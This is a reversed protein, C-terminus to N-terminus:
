RRFKKRNIVFILIFLILYYAVVTKYDTKINEISAYPLKSIWEVFKDMINAIYALPLFMIAFSPYIITLIWAIAAGAIIITSLPIIVLNTAAFYCSFREFYYIIIPATGIQAAISISISEWIYKGIKTHPTYAKLIDNNFILISAVALFSLQFSIDWLLLPNVILMIFATFAFINLSMRQRCALGIISYISLMTAARIISTPMGVMITYIWIIAMMIAQVAINRRRNKGFILSIISFIIGLHLGSLALIHSAGAISYRDNMEKDINTKNGLTMATLISLGNKSDSGVLGIPQIYKYFFNDIIIQSGIRAIDIRSINNTYVTDFGWKNYPIFTQAKYGHCKMWLPYNFNSNNNYQKPLELFSYHSIGNGIKLKKWNNYITDKMISAKIKFPKELRKNNIEVIILDCRITKGKETIRSSVVSKYEAFENNLQQKSNIENAAFVFCGLLFVIGSIINSVWIPKQKISFAIVVLIFISIPWVVFPIFVSIKSGIWIGMVLFILIRVIPALQIIGNTRM